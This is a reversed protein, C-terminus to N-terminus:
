KRDVVMANLKENYRYNLYPSDKTDDIYNGESTDIYACFGFYSCYLYKTDLDPFVLRTCRNFADECEAVTKCKIRTRGNYFCVSKIMDKYKKEHKMCEEKSNFQVCDFDSIYKTTM